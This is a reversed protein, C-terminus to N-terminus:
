AGRRGDAAAAGSHVEAVQRREYIIREYYSMVQHAVRGWAYRAAEAQGRLAMQRAWTPNRLVRLITAAIDEDDRPRTLLGDVEHTIVGAFGEINSAVVPVGAAMAELLVIGQSENGTNPGCYVSASRHYRPLDEYPVNERFIVDPFASM